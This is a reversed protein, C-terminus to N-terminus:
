QVKSLWSDYDSKMTDLQDVLSEYHDREAKINAKRDNARIMYNLKNESENLAKVLTNYRGKYSSYTQMNGSGNMEETYNELNANSNSLTRGMSDSLSKYRDANADQSFVPFVLCAFLVFVFLPKM